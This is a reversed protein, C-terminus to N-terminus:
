DNNVVTNWVTKKFRESMSSSLYIPVLLPAILTAIGIWVFCSLKPNEAFENRVEQTMAERVAPWFFEICCAIAISLAFIFYYIVLEM